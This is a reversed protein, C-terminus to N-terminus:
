SLIEEIVRATGAVGTIREQRANHEYFLDEHHLGLARLITAHLDRFQLPREVAM